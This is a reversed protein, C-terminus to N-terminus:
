ANRVFGRVKRMFNEDQTKGTPEWRELIANKGMKKWVILPGLHALETGLVKISSSVM